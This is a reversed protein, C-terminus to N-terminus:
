DGEVLRRAQLELKVECSPIASLLLDSPRYTGLIMVPLSGCRSAAYSLLDTSSLDAWHLDDVFLDCAPLGPDASGSLDRVRAKEARTLIRPIPGDFRRSAANRRVLNACGSEHGDAAAEGSQSNLLDELAELIPLYADTGALRESCRGVAIHCRSQRSVRDLFAEALMTKGIGPEGCLCVMSGCKRQAADFCHNLEALETERGVHNPPWAATLRRETRLAQPILWADMSYPCM